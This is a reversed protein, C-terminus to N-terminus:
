IQEPEVLSAVPAAQGDAVQVTDYGHAELLEVLSSRVESDDEAV